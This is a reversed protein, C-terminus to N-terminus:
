LEAAISLLRAKEGTWLHQRYIERGKAIREQVLTPNDHAWLIQSAMNEVDDPEFYIMEDPGFYDRIGQTSPAIVPRQMALYEFLRTPFNTETFPSRRNPVVGLNCERIAEAIETQTKSGHYRVRDRIGLREATALVDDLYPTASGYIELSVGPIRAKVQAVAEVLLDIGHRHVISGHHMIRYTEPHTRTVAAHELDPDFIETQPSNMVIQMKEPRCSRSTFLTKFTINPTLVVSSFGISWRELVRLLSVLWHTPSLNYISTMLEPMPDHLDLIVRSGRLKTPLAAFVLVDPMNHVHVLDYRRFLTRWALVFFCAGLFSAYQAFYVLKGGRNKGFPLRRLQVGRITEKTPENKDERLCILDVTAGAEAM